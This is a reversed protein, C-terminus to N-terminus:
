IFAAAAKVEEPSYDAYKGESKCLDAYANALRSLEAADVMRRVTSPRACEGRKPGCNNYAGALIANAKDINM